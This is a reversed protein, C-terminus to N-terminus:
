IFFREIEHKDTILGNETIIGSILHAPIHGGKSTNHVTQQSEFHSSTFVPAAIFLPIDFAKALVALRYTGIQYTDDDNKIIYDTVAIVASM